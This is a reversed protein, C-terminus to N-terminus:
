LRIMCIMHIYLLITTIFKYKRFPVTLYDQAFRSLTAVFFKHTFIRNIYLLAHVYLYIIILRLFTRLFIHTYIQTHTHTYRLITYYM